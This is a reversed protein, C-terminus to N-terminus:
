VALSLVGAAASQAAVSGGAAATGVAGHGGAQSSGAYQEAAPAAGGAPLVSSSAVQVQQELHLPSSIDGVAVSLGPISNVQQQAAAQPVPQVQAWANLQRYYPEKMDFSGRAQTAFCCWRFSSIFLSVIFHLSCTKYYMTTISPNLLGASDNCHVVLHGVASSVSTLALGRPPLLL